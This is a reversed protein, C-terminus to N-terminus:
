TSFTDTSVSLTQKRAHVPESGSREVDSGGDQRFFRRLDSQKSTKSMNVDEIEPFRVKMVKCFYFSSWLVDDEPNFYEVILWHFRGTTVSLASINYNPFVGVM